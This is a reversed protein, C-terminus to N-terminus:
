CYWVVSQFLKRSSPFLARIQKELEEPKTIPSRNKDARTLTIHYGSNWLSKRVEGQFGEFVSLVVVMVFVLITLFLFSLRVGPYFIVTRGQGRLYRFAILLEPYFGLPGM